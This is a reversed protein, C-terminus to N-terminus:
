SLTGVNVVFTGRNPWAIKVDPRSLPIDLAPLGDRAICLTLHRSLLGQDLFINTTIRFTFDQADEWPFLQSPAAEPSEGSAYIKQRGFGAVRKGPSLAAPFTFEDRGETEPLVTGDALIATTFYSGPFVDFEQGARIEFSYDVSAAEGKFKGYLIHRFLGIPEKAQQTMFFRNWIM